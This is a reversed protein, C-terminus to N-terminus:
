AAQLWCPSGRMAPSPPTPDEIGRTMSWCPWPSPLGGHAARESVGEIYAPAIVDIPPQFATGGFAFAIVDGSQVVLVGSCPQALLGDFEVTTGVEDPGRLVHEIQYEFGRAYSPPDGASPTVAVVTGVIITEASPAVERFSPFPGDCTAQVAAPKALM